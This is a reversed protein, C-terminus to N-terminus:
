TEFMRFFSFSEERARTAEQNASSRDSWGSKCYAVMRRRGKAPGRDPSPIEADVRAILRTDMFVLYHLEDVSM